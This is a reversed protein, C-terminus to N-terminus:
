PCSKGWTNAVKDGVGLHLATGSYYGLARLRGKKREMCLQKHAKLQDSKTCFQVDIATGFPHRGAAGGVNKNYPEPRWWNYISCIKIQKAELEKILQVAQVTFAWTSEDPHILFHPQVPSYTCDFTRHSDPNPRAVQDCWASQNTQTRCYNLFADLKSFGLDVPVVQNMSAKMCSGQQELYGDELELDDEVKQSHDHNAIDFKNLDERQCSILLFTSLLFPIFVLSKPIKEVM